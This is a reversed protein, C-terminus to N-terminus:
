RKRGALPHKLPKPAAAKDRKSTVAAELIEGEHDVARWLYCLNGNIKVFAEDLRWGNRRM